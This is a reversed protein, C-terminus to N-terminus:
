DPTKSLSQRKDRTKSQRWKPRLIDLTTEIFFIEEDDYQCRWHPDRMRGAYDSITNILIPALAGKKRSKNARTKAYEPRKLLRQEIERFTPKTVGPDHLLEYRILAADELLKLQGVEDWSGPDKSEEEHFIPASVTWLIIKWHAANSQDLRAKVFMRDVHNKRTALYRNLTKLVDPPLQGHYGALEDLAENIDQRLRKISVKGREEDRM